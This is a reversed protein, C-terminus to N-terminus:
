RREDGKRAWRELREALWRSGWAFVIIFAVVVLLTAVIREEMM